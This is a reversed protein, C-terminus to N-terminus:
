NLQLPSTFCRVVGPAMARADCRKRPLRAVKRSSVRGKSSVASSTRSSPEGILRATRSEFPRLECRAGGVKRETITVHPNDAVRLIGVKFLAHIKAPLRIRQPDGNATARVSNASAALLFWLSVRVDTIAEAFFFFPLSRRFCLKM